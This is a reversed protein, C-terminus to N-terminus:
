SKDAWSRGKMIHVITSPVVGFRSAVDKVMMGGTRLRKIEEVQERTLKSPGRSRKKAVRDAVNDEHTGLFLHVPRVCLPTDCHHLVNLGPPVPGNAM